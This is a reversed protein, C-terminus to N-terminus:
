VWTRYFRGTSSRRCLLRLPLPHLYAKLAKSMKLEDQDINGDSKKFDDDSIPRDFKSQEFYDLLVNYDGNLIGMKSKFRVKWSLFYDGKFKEIYLEKRHQESAPPM